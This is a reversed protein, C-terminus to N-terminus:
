LNVRPFIACICKGAKLRLRETFTISVVVKSELLLEAAFFIGVSVLSGLLLAFKKVFRFFILMLLVGIILAVSIPTYPIIYKPYDQSYVTGNAIMDSIVKLGMYLPYISAALVILVSFVYYLYYKKNTNM